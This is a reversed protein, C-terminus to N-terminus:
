LEFLKRVGGRGILHSFVTYNKSEYRIRGAVIAPHIRLREALAKVDREDSRDTLRAAEWAKSPILIESALTDAQREWEDASARDLDDFIVDVDQQKDLHLSVHALEHLLTFWFNDLRDHRATLAVLRSGDPIVMAAGDLHTKPLHREVVVHIGRKHLYERALKPGDNLYSLAVVDSLVAKTLSGRTYAPLTSRCAVGMVRIRWAQLAGEDSEGGVRVRQRNLAIPICGGNLPGLFTAAVDEWQERLDAPKGNFGEFWGRKHMEAIPFGKTVAMIDSSALVAARERLLVEAPIGLGSVLRRIMSLSLDRQGGMVESVKSKSGLYQELDKRNLGQQDMRFRIATVPDPLDIPFADDEYKEVLVLLLELEDGDATGPKAGFIEDIRTMAAEYDKKTKIVKPTM